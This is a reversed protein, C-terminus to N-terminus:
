EKEVEEVWELFPQLRANFREPQAVPAAHRADELVSLRADPIHSVYARYAAPDNSAWRGTMKQQLDPRM